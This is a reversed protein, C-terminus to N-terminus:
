YTIGKNKELMGIVSKRRLIKLKVTTSIAGIPM